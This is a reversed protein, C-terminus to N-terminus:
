RAIPEDVRALQKIEDLSNSSWDEYFRLRQSPFVTSPPEISSLMSNTSRAMTRHGISAVVLGGGMALLIKM